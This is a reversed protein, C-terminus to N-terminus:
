LWIQVEKIRSPWEVIAKHRFGNEHFKSNQTMFYRFTNREVKQKSDENNICYKFTIKDTM